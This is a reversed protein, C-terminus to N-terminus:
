TLLLLHTVAQLNTSNKDRTNKDKPIQKLKWFDRAVPLKPFFTPEQYGVDHIYRGIMEVKDYPNVKTANMGRKEIRGLRAQMEGLTERELRDLRVKVEGLEGNMRGLEGNMQGLEGNVQEKVESVETRIAALSIGLEQTRAAIADRQTRPEEQVSSQHEAFKETLSVQSMIIDKHVNLM